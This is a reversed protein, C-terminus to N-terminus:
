DTCRLAAYPRNLFFVRSCSNTSQNSCSNSNEGRSLRPTQIYDRFHEKVLQLDPHPLHLVGAYARLFTWPFRYLIELLYAHLQGPVQRAIRVTFRPQSRPSSPLHLGKAQGLLREILAPEQRLLVQSPTEMLRIVPREIWTTRCYRRNTLSKWGSSCTVTGSAYMPLCISLPLLALFCCFFYGSLHGLLLYDRVEPLM